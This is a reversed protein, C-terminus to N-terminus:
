PTHTAEVPSHVEIRTPGSPSPSPVGSAQSGHGCSGSLISGPPQPQPTASTSLSPSPARSQLSPQGRSASLVAGPGHPQPWTSCSTSALPTASQRSSASPSPTGSPTSLQTRTGLRAWDSTSPSPIPSAQSGQVSLSASRCPTAIGAHTTPAPPQSSPHLSPSSSSMAVKGPLVSTQSPLSLPQLPSTSAASGAR